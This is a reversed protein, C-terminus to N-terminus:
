IISIQFVSEVINKLESMYETKWAIFFFPAQYGDYYEVGCFAEETDMIHMVDNEKGFFYDLMSDSSLREMRAFDLYLEKEPFHKYRVAYPSKNVITNLMEFQEEYCEELDREICFCIIKKFLEENNNKAVSYM